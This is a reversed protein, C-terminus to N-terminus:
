TLEGPHVEDVFHVGDNFYPGMVGSILTVFVWKAM